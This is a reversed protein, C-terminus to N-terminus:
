DIHKVYIKHGCNPCEVFYDYHYGRMDRYEEEKLPLSKYDFENQCCECRKIETKEIKHLEDKLEQNDHVNGIVEFDDEINCRYANLSFDSKNCDVLIYKCDTVM